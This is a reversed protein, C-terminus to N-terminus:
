KGKRTNYKWCHRKHDEAEQKIYYIPDDGMRASWPCYECTLLWYPGLQGDKLEGLVPYRTFKRVKRDGRNLTLAQKTM